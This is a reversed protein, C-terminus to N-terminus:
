NRKRTEEKKGRFKSKKDGVQQEQRRKEAEKKREEEVRLRYNKHASQGLKVFSSNIPVHHPLSGFVKLAVTAIRLKNISAESLRIRDETVTKGSDLFGKEVKANGHALTLAAKVVSLITPYKQTAWVM